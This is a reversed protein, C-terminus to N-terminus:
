RAEEVRKRLAHRTHLLAFSLVLVLVALAAAVPSTLQGREPPLAVPALPEARVVVASAPLDLAAGIFASLEAPDFPVAPGDPSGVLQVAAGSEGAFVRAHVVGPRGALTEEVRTVIRQRAALRVEGPGQVWRPAVSAPEPLALAQLAAEATAREADPVTVVFGTPVATSVEAHFGLRVLARRASSAAAETTPPTVPSPGCGSVIGGLGLLIGLGLEVGPRGVGCGM